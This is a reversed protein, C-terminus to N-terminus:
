LDQDRYKVSPRGAMFGLPRAVEMSNKALLRAVIDALGALCDRDIPGFSHVSGVGFEPDFPELAHDGWPYIDLVFEYDLFDADDADELQVRLGLVDGCIYRGNFVNSSDRM